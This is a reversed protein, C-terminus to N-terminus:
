HQVVSNATTELTDCYIAHKKKSYLETHIHTFFFFDEEHLRGRVCLSTSQGANRGIQNCAFVYNGELDSCTVELRWSECRAKAMNPLPFLEATREFKFSKHLKKLGHWTQLGHSARRSSKMLRAGSLLGSHNSPQPSGAKIVMVRPQALDVHQQFLFFM